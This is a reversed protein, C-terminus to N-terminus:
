FGTNRNSGLNRLVWGQSRFFDCDVPCWSYTPSIRIGRDQVSSMKNDKFFTLWECLHDGTGGSLFVLMDKGNRAAASQARIRHMTKTDDIMVLLGTGAVLAGNLGAPGIGSLASGKADAKWGANM